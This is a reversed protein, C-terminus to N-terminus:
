TGVTYVWLASRMLLLTGKIQGLTRHGLLELAELPQPRQVTSAAGWCREWGQQHPAMTSDGGSTVSPKRGAESGVQPSSHDHM